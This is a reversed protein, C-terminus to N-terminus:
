IKTQLKTWQKELRQPSMPVSTRLEQAFLAVRLEEILWRFEELPPSLSAVATADAGLAQCQQLYRQSFESVSQM